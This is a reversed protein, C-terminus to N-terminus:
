EGAPPGWLLTIHQLWSSSGAYASSADETSGAFALLVYRVGPPSCPTASASGGSGLVLTRNLTTTFSMGTIYYGINFAGFLGTGGGGGVSASVIYEGAALVLDAAPNGGGGGRAPAATSGYTVQLYDMRSNIRSAIRTIPRAGDLSYASDDFLTGTAQYWGFPGQRTEYTVCAGTYDLAAARAHM